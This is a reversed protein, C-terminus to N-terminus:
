SLEDDNDDLAGELEKQLEQLEEISLSTDLEEARFTQAEDIEEPTMRDIILRPTEEDMDPDRDLGLITYRDERAQKLATIANKLTIVDEKLDGVAKKDKIAQAVKSFLVKSLVQAYRYHEEKTEKIRKATIEADDKISELITDKVAEDVKKRDQGKKIGRKSMTRSLYAPHIDYKDALEALTHEGLAWTAEIEAWESPKLNKRPKHKRAM